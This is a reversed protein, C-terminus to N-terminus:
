IGCLIKSGSIRPDGCSANNGRDSDGLVSPFQKRKILLLLVAVMKSSIMSVLAPIDRGWYIAM